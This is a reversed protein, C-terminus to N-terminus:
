LAEEAAAEEARARAIFEEAASLATRQAPARAGARPRVDGLRMGLKKRWSEYEFIKGTLFEVTENAIADAEAVALVHRVNAEAEALNEAIREQLHGRGPDQPHLPRVDTWGFRTAVRSRIADLEHMAWTSLGRPPIARAGGPPSESIQDLALPSASSLSTPDVRAPEGAPRGMAEGAPYGMPQGAPKNVHVTGSGAPRGMPEGAPYGMPPPTTKRARKAEVGRRSKEVQKLLFDIRECVGAIFVGDREATLVVQVVEDRFELDVTTSHGATVKEALGAAIMAEAFGDIEAANDVDDIALYPSRALYCAAWVESIAGATHHRHLGLVRALKKNKPGSAFDSDVSLRM